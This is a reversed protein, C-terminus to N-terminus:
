ATKEDGLAAKVFDRFNSSTAKGKMEFLGDSTEIKFTPYHKIKYLASKGKDAYANVDEFFLTHGGYTYNGNKVLQKFSALEPEATVCYPCWPAYFFMFKAQGPDMNMDM